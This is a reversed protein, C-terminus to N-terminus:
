LMISLHIIHGPLKLLGRVYAQYEDGKRVMDLVGLLSM